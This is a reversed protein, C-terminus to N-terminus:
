YACGEYYQKTLFAFRVELPRSVVAPWKKKAFPSVIHGAVLGVRYTIKFTVDSWGDIFL